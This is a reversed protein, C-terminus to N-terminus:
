QFKLQDVDTSKYATIVFSTLDFHMSGYQCCFNLPVFCSWLILLIKTKAWLLGRPPLDLKFYKRELLKSPSPRQKPDIQVCHLAVIVMKKVFEADNNDNTAYSCFEDLLRDLLYSPFTSHTHTHTPPPPQAGWYRQCWWPLGVSAGRPRLLFFINFFLPISTRLTQSGSSPLKMKKEWWIWFWWAL